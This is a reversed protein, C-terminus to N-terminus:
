VTEVEPSHYEVNQKRPNYYLPNLCTRRIRLSVGVSYAYAYAFLIHMNASHMVLDDGVSYAYSSATKRRMLSSICFYVGERRSHMQFTSIGKSSPDGGFMHM